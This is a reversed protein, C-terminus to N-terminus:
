SRRKIFPVLLWEEGTMVEYYYCERNKIKCIRM